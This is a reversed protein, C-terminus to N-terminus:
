KKLVFLHFGGEEKSDKDLECLPLLFKMVTEVWEKKIERRDEQSLKNTMKILVPSLPRLGIDNITLTLRSLYYGHDAINFGVDEAAKKFDHYSMTWHMSETRGHNLLRLLESNKEKWQYTFCYDLYKTNPLCLIALGGKDLVRYLERLSKNLDKLWYLINSFITKFQGEEFPWPQDADHKVLSDYLNLAGAQKLLSDKHDLGTTFTYNSTKAIINDLNDTNCADYIDKNDWFGETDTNIFWDHDISFSGGATIFSFLGNGCGLDLSPAAIEYKSINSSAITDWLAWEPRLWTLNLHNELFNVSGRSIIKDNM